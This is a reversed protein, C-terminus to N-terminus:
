SNRNFKIANVFFSNGGATVSFVNSAGSITVKINKADISHRYEGLFM